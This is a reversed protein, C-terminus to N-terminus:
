KLYENSIPEANDCWFPRGKEPIIFFKGNLFRCDRVMIKAKTYYLDNIKIYYIMPYPFNFSPSATDGKLCAIAYLSDGREKVYKGGGSLGICFIVLIFLGLKKM